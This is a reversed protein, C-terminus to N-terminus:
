SLLNSVESLLKLLSERIRLSPLSRDPMPALWDTLVMLVNHELFALQLDHKKLQSMVKPLMAIKNVAPKAEQNLRRDEESANRMDALLQAIIDDNDNIIDIDKRKRRRTQEEKKRALMKDFDSLADNDRYIFDTKINEVIKNVQFM